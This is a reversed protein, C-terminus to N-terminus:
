LWCKLIFMHVHSTSKKLLQVNKASFFVLVLMFHEWYLSTQEHTELGSKYKKAKLYLAMTTIWAAASRAENVHVYM